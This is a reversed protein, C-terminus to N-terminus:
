LSPSAGEALELIKGVEQQAVKPLNPCFRGGMRMPRMVTVLNPAIDISHGHEYYQFRDFALIDQGRWKKM